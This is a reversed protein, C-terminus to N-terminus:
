DHVYQFGHHLSLISMHIFIHLKQITICPDENEWMYLALNKLFQVYFSRVIRSIVDM